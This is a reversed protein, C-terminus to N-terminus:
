AHPMADSILRFPPLARAARSFPLRRADIAAAYFIDAASAFSPTHLSPWSPPFALPLFAPSTVCLCRFHRLM